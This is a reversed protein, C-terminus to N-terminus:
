QTGHHRNCMSCKAAMCECQFITRLQEYKNFTTSHLGVENTHPNTAASIAGLGKDCTDLYLDYIDSESLFGLIVTKINIFTTDADQVMECAHM